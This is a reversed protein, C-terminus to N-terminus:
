MVKLTEHSYAELEWYINSQMWLCVYIVYMFMIIYIIYNKGGKLLKSIICLYEIDTSEISYKATKCSQVQLLKLARSNLTHFM